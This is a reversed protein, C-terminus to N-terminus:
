TTALGSEQAAQTVKQVYTPDGTGAPTSNLNGLDVGNPGSNYARLAADMNGGFQTALDKMYNAGARINDAPKSIDGGGYKQFEDPGLQMLGGGPTDAVGKSEQWIQGALIGPPVGTARSASMIESNYKSAVQQPTMDGGSTAPPSQVASASAPQPTTTADTTPAASTAPATADAGSIAGPTAGSAPTAAAALTPPAGVGGGGFSPMGGGGGGRGGVGGVSPSPNNNLSATMQLAAILARILQEIQQFQQLAQSVASNQTPDFSSSGVSSVSLSM